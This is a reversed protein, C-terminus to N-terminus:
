NYLSLKNFIVYDCVYLVNEKINDYYSKNLMNYMFIDLNNFFKYILHNVNIFM